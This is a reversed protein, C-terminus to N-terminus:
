YLDFTYVYINRIETPLNNKREELISNIANVIEWRGSYSLALILTMRKNNKTKEIAQELEQKCNNPLQQLNGIAHLCIDNEMLTETEKNITSILLTMLANVEKESRKWNETSFAYLTLYQIKKKITQKLIKEVTYLGARHGLNRSKKNKIGWRGNGDMIIAVHNIPNM